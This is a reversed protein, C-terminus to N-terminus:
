PRAARHRAGSRHQGTARGRQFGSRRIGVRPSGVRPPNIRATRVAADCSRRLCCGGPRGPPRCCRGPRCRYSDGRHTRGQAAQAREQDRHLLRHGAARAAEEGRSRRQRQLPHHREGPNRGTPGTPGTGTIPQTSVLARPSIDDRSGHSTRAPRPAPLCRRQEQRSAEPQAGDHGLGVQVAQPIATRPSPDGQIAPPPDDGSPCRRFHGCATCWM